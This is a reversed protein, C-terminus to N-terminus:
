DLPKEFWNTAYPNDNYREIAAFGTSEYMAIAEGLTDNTDLVVRGFGLAAAARELEDLMRRGLGLGRWEDHVWMRKIEATRDDVPQVGGCAVPHVDSRGVIFRGTPPGMAAAGAGLANGDDFGGPFRRDLEDFYQRMSWQADDHAPDVHDFVITAARLLRDAFALASALQERQRRPLPEVLQEALRQSRADLENWERRGAETLRARRRRRDTPDPEVVVSGDRELRRLLRSLYGSDLGLRTRLESVPTGDHGIEFLLRAPGLPRGTGLFSEDLAGIRQTYSRNFGRLVAITDM